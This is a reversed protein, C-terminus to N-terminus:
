EFGAITETRIQLKNKYKELRGQIQIKQNRTLNIKQDLLIDISFSNQTITIIQFEKHNQIKTITGSTSLKKNLHNLTVDKIKIQPYPLINTLILLIIIGLLSISLTIKTISPM